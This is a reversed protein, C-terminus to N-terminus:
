TPSESKSRSAALRAVTGNRPNRRDSGGEAQDGWSTSLNKLDKALSPVEPLTCVVVLQGPTSFSLVRHTIEGALEMLLLVAAREFSPTLHGIVLHVEARAARLLRKGLTVTDRALATRSFGLELAAVGVVELLTNSFDHVQQL